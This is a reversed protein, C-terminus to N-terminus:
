RLYKICKKEYLIFIITRQFHTICIFKVYYIKYIRIGDQIKARTLMVIAFIICTHTDTHRQREKNREKLTNLIRIIYYIHEMTAAAIVVTFYDVNNAHIFISEMRALIDLNKIKNRPKPKTTIRMGSWRM